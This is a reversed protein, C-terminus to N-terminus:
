RRPVSFGDFGLVGEQVACPESTSRKPARAGSWFHSWVDALGGTMGGPASKIVYRGQHAISCMTFSVHIARGNNTGGSGLHCFCSRVPALPAANTASTEARKNSVRGDTPIAGVLIRNGTALALM